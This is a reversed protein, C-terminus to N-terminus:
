VPQCPKKQGKKLQVIKLKMIWYQTLQSNAKM